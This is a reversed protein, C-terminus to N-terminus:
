AGQGRATILLALHGDVPLVLRMVRHALIPETFKYLTTHTRQAAVFPVAATGPGATCTSRDRPDSVPLRRDWGALLEIM